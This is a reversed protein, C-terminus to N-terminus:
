ATKLHKDIFSLAKTLHNKVTKPSIDLHSAIERTTMHKERSLRYVEQCRCPLKNIVLQLDNELFNNIALNHTVSAIDCVSEKCLSQDTLTCVKSNNRKRYYDVIKNRASKILYNEIKESLDIKDLRKWLAIFLDQVIEEAVENNKTKSYCLIYLRKWYSRYFEEFLLEKNSNNKIRKKITKCKQYEEYVFIYM